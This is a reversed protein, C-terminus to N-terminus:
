IEAFTVCGNASGAMTSPYYQFDLLDIEIMEQNPYIADLLLSAEEYGWDHRYVIPYPVRPIESTHVNNRNYRYNLLQAGKRQLHFYARLKPRIVKIHRMQLRGVLDIDELGWRLRFHIISQDLYFFRIFYELNLFHRVKRGM